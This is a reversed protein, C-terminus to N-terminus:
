LRRRTLMAYWSGDVTEASAPPHRDPLDARLRPEEAGSQNNETEPIDTAHHPSTIETAPINRPRLSEALKALGSSFSEGAEPGNAMEGQASADAGCFPCRKARIGENDM